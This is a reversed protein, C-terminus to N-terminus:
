VKTQGAKGFAQVRLWKREGLPNAICALTRTASIGFLAIDGLDYVFAIKVGLEGGISGELLGGLHRSALIRLVISKAIRNESGM